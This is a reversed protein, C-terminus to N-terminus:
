PTETELRFDIVLTARKESKTTSGNFSYAKVDVKSTALKDIAFAMGEGRWEPSEVIEQIIATVDISYPQDINWETPTYTVAELTRKRSLYDQAGPIDCDTNQFWPSSDVVGRVVFGTQPPIPDLTDSAVFTLTAGDIKITQTETPEPLKIHKFRVATSQNDYNSSLYLNEQEACFYGSQLGVDADDWFDSDDAKSLSTVTSTDNRSATVVFTVALSLVILGAVMWGMKHQRFRRPQGFTDPHDLNPTLDHNSLLESSKNPLTAQPKALESNSPKTLAIQAETSTFSLELGYGRAEKFVSEAHVNEGAKLLVYIRELLEPSPEPASRLLYAVEAHSAAKKYRGERGAKEGLTVHAERVQAALSEKTQYLWEVLEEGMESTDFGELFPGQYQAIATELQDNALASRLNAVDSLLDTWVKDKDTTIAGPTEKNLQTLAMRLGQMPDKITPWFLDALDRRSRPGELSLYALLLLLKPRTLSTSELQLKGTM